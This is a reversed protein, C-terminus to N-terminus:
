QPTCNTLNPQPAGSFTIEVRRNQPERVGDATEVLLRTEGFAETVMAAEPVGKGALYAKVSDARRQSLRMNYEATGSTDAHGALAVNAQGTAAFQEAARDLIAAAEATILSKDWDFFVLFPGPTVAAPPCPPLAVPAPPPPPPPPPAAPEFFNYSLTLLLSHSRYRTQTALGNTTFTDVNDVNFFRYRLGLDVHDSLPKYVGALVQWAVGTDSDDIMAAGPSVLQYNSHQVRAIGVGSGVYAGVDSGQGGFDFMGNAMFSLVRANGDAANYTGVPPTRAVLTTAPATAVGYFVPPLAGEVIMNRIKNAKYAVEFEARFMGFDYGINGGVDYGIKHRARLAEESVVTAAANRVDFLENQVLNPGAEVGIYWAQDKAMVPGSLATTALVMAAVFKRM